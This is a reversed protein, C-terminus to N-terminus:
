RFDFQRYYRRPTIVSEDKSFLFQQNDLNVWWFEHGSFLLLNEADIWDIDWAYMTTLERINGDTDALIFDPNESSRWVVFQKSNPAWVVPKFDGIFLKQDNSLDTKAVHLEYFNEQDNVHKYYALHTIDPAIWIKAKVFGDIDAVVAAQVRSLRIASRGTVFVQWIEIPLDLPKGWEDPTTYLEKSSAVVLLSDSAKSWVVTSIWSFSVLKHPNEGKGNVVILEDGGVGGSVAAILSGDPSPSFETEKNPFVEKSTVVGTDINAEYLTGTTSYLSTALWYIKSFLLTHTNPLWGILYPREFAPDIETKNYILKLDTGDPRVTWVSGDLQLFAIYHGDESFMLPLTNCFDEYNMYQPDGSYEDLDIKKGSQWLKIKGLDEYVIQLSALAAPMLYPTATPILTPPLPISTKSPTVKPKPTSTLTPSITLLQTPEPTFTTLLRGTSVSTIQVPSTSIMAPQSSSLGQRRPACASLFIISVIGLILFSLPKCVALNNHAQIELNHRSM